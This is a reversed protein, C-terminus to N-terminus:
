TIKSLKLTFTMIKSLQLAFTLAYNFCLAHVATAGLGQAVRPKM